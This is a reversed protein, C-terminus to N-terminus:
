TPTVNLSLFLVFFIVTKHERLVLRRNESNNPILLKHISFRVNVRERMGSKNQRIQHAM